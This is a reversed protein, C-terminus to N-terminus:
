PMDATHSSGFEYAAVCNADAGVFVTNTWYSYYCSPGLVPCFCSNLQEVNLLGWIKVGLGDSIRGSFNNQARHALAAAAQAKNAKKKKNQQMHQFRQAATEGEEEEEEQESSSQGYDSDDEKTPIVRQKGKSTAATQGGGGDDPVSAPFDMLEMDAINLPPKHGRPLRSPGQMDPAHSSMAFGRSSPGAAQSVPIHTCTGAEIADVLAMKDWDLPADHMEEDRQELSLEVLPVEPVWSITPATQVPAAPPWAPLTSTTLVVAPGSRDAVPVVAWA